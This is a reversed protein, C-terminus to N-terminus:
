NWGILKTGKPLKLKFDAATLAPNLEIERFSVLLYDDSPEVLKQQIPIWRRGDIWLVIKGFYAQVRESKPVMELVYTPTEEIKEAGLIRLQYAEKLAERTTGFGLLLFEAKDRKKGLRYKQAQKIVPQFFLLEGDGIVLASPKPEEIEKRIYVEGEERLFLFRGSEGEDFEELIETWKKQELLAEMSHVEAGHKEIQSLVTELDPVEAMGPTVVIVTLFSALITKMISPVRTRQMYGEAKEEGM